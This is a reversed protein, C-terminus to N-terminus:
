KGQLQELSQLIGEAVAKAVKDQYEETKLLEAEEQNSLFGCEVIVTPVVTRKLLYYSENAKAERKNEPDLNKRLSEQMIKAIEEGELSQGYYFCQAGKVYEETYSNQHISITFVPNEKEILACRNRMDSVKQNSSGKDHLSQDKERTMVVRVDEKELIKKVKKAISLNIDKELEGNIGIKGPDDGGHGADLVICTKQEKAKLSTVLVAGKRSLFGAALLLVIAM